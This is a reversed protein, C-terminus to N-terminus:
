PAAPFRTSFGYIAQNIDGVAIGKLGISVLLLFIAHQIEGCDQYEDIFIHTYRAKIYKLAGPVNKLVYLAIEGSIELFLDTHHVTLFDLVNEAKKAQMARVLTNVDKKEYYQMLVEQLPGNALDHELDFNALFLGLAIANEKVYANLEIASTPTETEYSWENEAEHDRWYKRLENDESSIHDLIGM